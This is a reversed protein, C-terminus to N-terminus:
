LKSSNEPEECGPQDIKVKDIVIGNGGFIEWATM